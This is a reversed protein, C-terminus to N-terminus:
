ETCAFRSVSDLIKLLNQIGNKLPMVLVTDNRDYIVKLNRLGSDLENKEKNRKELHAMFLSLGKVKRCIILTM